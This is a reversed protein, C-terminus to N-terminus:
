PTSGDSGTGSVIGRPAIDMVHDSAAAFLEPSWSLPSRPKERRLFSIAEQYARPGEKTLTYSVMDESYLKM